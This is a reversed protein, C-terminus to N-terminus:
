DRLFLFFIDQTYLFGDRKLGERIKIDAGNKIM